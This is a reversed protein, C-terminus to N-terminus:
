DPGSFLLFLIWIFDCVHAQWQKKSTCRIGQKDCSKMYAPPLVCRFLALCSMHPPILQKNPHTTFSKSLFTNRQWHPCPLAPCSWSASPLYFLWNIEPHTDEKPQPWGSLEQRPQPWPRVTAQISLDLCAARIPLRIACDWQQCFIPFSYQALPKDCCFIKIKPITLAEPNYNILLLVRNKKQIDFYNRLNM